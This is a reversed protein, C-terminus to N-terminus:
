KGDRPTNRPQGLVLFANFLDFGTREVNISVDVVTEAVTLVLM